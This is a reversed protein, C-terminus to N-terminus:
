KLLLMKHTQVFNDTQIRYFYVGSAFNNANWVIKYKGSKKQESLLTEIKQGAINYINITVKTAEPIEYVITTVPNFPNPYNQEVLYNEVIEPSEQVAVKPPIPGIRYRLIASFMGVTFVTSDDIAKVGYLYNTAPFSEDEIWTTGGDTTFHIEASVGVAVGFNENAFSVDKLDEYTSISIDSWNDGADTTKLITGDAGVIFGTTNNIFTISNLQESVPSSIDNWNAGGNTTKLIKAKNYSGGVAIGTNTNIFEVGYLTTDGIRQETWSSGGDSSKVILGDYGVAYFVTSSPNDFGYLTKSQIDATSISTWSAGNNTSKLVEGKSGVAIADSSNLYDIDKLSSVNTEILEWNEGADTTRM